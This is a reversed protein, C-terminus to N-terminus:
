FPRPNNPYGLNKCTSSQPATKCLVVIRVGNLQSQDSLQSIIENCGSWLDECKDAKGVNAYKIKVDPIKLGADTAESMHHRYPGFKFRISSAGGLTDGFYSSRLKGDIWMHLFGDKSWRANVLVNVWKGKLPSFNHDLNVFYTDFYLYEEGTENKHSTYNPSNFVWNFRNNIINLAADHTKEGKGYLKKFDFISITHKDIKLGEPVFYGVRYWKTKNKKTTEKYPEMIQFRQAHGEINYRKWDLKHGKFSYKLDFEIGKETVGMRDEFNDFFKYINPDKINRTNFVMKNDSQAKLVYYAFDKKEKKKMKIHWKEAYSHSSVLFLIIFFILNIKKM